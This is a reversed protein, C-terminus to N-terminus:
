FATFIMSHFIERNKNLTLYDFHNTLNRTLYRTQKYLDYIDHKITIESVFKWLPCYDTILDWFEVEGGTFTFMYVTSQNM